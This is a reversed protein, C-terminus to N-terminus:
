SVLFGTTSHVLANVSTAVQAVGAAIESTETTDSTAGSSLEAIYANVEVLTAAQEKALGTVERVTREVEVLNEEISGFHAILRRNNEATMMSQELTSNMALETARAAEASSNALARIEDAVVSFGEGAEGATAGEISANLALLNTQLSIENITQIIHRAEEAQSSMDDIATTVRGLSVTGHDVASISTTTLHISGDAQQAVELGDSSASEIMKSIERLQIAREETTYVQTDAAHQLTSTHTELQAATRAIEGIVEDLQRLARNFDDQLTINEGHAERIWRTRLDGSTVASMCTAIDANQEALVGVFENLESAIARSGADEIDLEVRAGLDGSRVSDFLARVHELTEKLSLQDALAEKHSVNASTVADQMREQARRQFRSLLISSNLLIAGSSTLVLIRMVGEAVVPPGSLELSSAFLLGAGVFAHWIGLLIAARLSALMILWLPLIFFWTMFPANAGDRMVCAVFVWFEAWLTCAVVAWSSGLSRALLPLLLGAPAVMFSIFALEYDGLVVFYASMFSALLLTVGRWLAIITAEFEIKLEQNARM